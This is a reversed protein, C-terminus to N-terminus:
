VVQCLTTFTEAWTRSLSAKMSFALVLIALISSSPCASTRLKTPFRLVLQALLPQRNGAITARNCFCSSCDPRDTVATLALGILNRSSKTGWQTSSICCHIHSRWCSKCSAVMATLAVIELEPAFQDWTVNDSSPRAWVHAPVRPRPAFDRIVYLIGAVCETGPDAQTEWSRGRAEDRGDHMWSLEWRALHLSVDADVRIVHAQVDNGIRLAAGALAMEPTM